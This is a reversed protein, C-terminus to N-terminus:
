HELICRDNQIKQTESHNDKSVILVWSESSGAEKPPSQQGEVLPPFDNVLTELNLESPLNVEPNSDMFKASEVIENQKLQNIITDAELSDTGIIWNVCQAKNLLSTSSEFAFSKSSNGKELNKSMKLEQARQLATKGDEQFRRPRPIREVPGWKPKRKQNKMIGDEVREVEADKETARPLVGAEGLSLGVDDEQDEPEEDSGELEMRQLLISCDDNVDKKAM